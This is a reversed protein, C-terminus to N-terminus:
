ALEAEDAQASRKPDWDLRCGTGHRVHGDPYVNIYGGRRVRWVAVPTFVKIANDKRVDWHFGLPLETGGIFQPERGHRAGSEAAVWRRDDADIWAANRYHRHRFLRREDPRDLVNLEESTSQSGFIHFPPVRPDGTGESRTARMWSDFRDAWEFAQNGNLNMTFAKYMCFRSIRVLDKVRVDEYPRTRVQLDFCFLVAVPCRHLQAYLREADIRPLVQARRGAAGGRQVTVETCRM